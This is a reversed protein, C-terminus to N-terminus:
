IYISALKYNHPGNEAGVDVVRMRPVYQMVVSPAKTESIFGTQVKVLIGEGPMNMAQTEVYFNDDDLDIAIPYWVANHTEIQENM